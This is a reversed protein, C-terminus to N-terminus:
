QDICQCSFEPTISKKTRFEFSESAEWSFTEGSPTVAEILNRLEGAELDPSEEDPIFVDFDGECSFFVVLILLLNLLRLYM